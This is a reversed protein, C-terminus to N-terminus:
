NIFKKRLKEIDNKTKVFFTETWFKNADIQNQRKTQYTEGFFNQAEIYKAIDNIAILQYNTLIQNSQKVERFLEDSIPMEPFIDTIYGNKKNEYVSLIQSLEKIIHKLVPEKQDYLFDTCVLYKESNSIRSTLPKFIYVKDFLDNLISILKLSIKTYTEFIKLVFSGNKNLVKIALLIQAIVLIYAEQEQNNENKWEFGGDGSVFDVLEGVDSTFLDITKLKTIDGNTKTTSKKAESLPYTKYIQLRQPKEKTFYDIFNSYMKPVNRDESHLTIGFYKDNKSKDSFMDRFLITAQIFGGPGEAIHVSRFNKNLPIVDYLVITEWMKYFARSIIELKITKQAYENGKSEIDEKYDDIKTEFPNVVNKKSVLERPIDMKNKNDYIHQHFGLSLLPRPIIDSFDINVNYKLLQNKPTKSAKIQYIYPSNNM